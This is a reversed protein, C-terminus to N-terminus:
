ENEKMKFPRLFLVNADIYFYEFCVGRPFTIFRLLWLGIFFIM